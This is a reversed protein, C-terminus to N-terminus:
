AQAGKIIENPEDHEHIKEKKISINGDSDTQENRKLHNKMDIHVGNGGRVGNVGGNLRFRFSVNLFLFEKTTYIM